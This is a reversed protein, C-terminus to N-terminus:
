DFKELDNLLGMTVGLVLLLPILVKGELALFSFVVYLGLFKLFPRVFSRILKKRIQYLSFEKRDYDLALFILRYRRDIRLLPDYMEGLFFLVSVAYALLFFVFNTFIESFLILLGLTTIENFIRLPSLNVKETGKLYLYSFVLSTFLGGSSLILGEFLWSM